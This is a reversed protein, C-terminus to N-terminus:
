RVQGQAYLYGAIAAVILGAIVAFAIKWASWPREGTVQGTQGNVVFRFSRGRFKYAAIWVPVLVHKFTMDSLRTDVDEVRQRDGGIDFKIDRLIQRDMVNRAEGFADELEITYAEARFGALYEPQYPELRTLDWHVLGQRFRDPLATSAVVLVDDFFRAVRGSVRRWKVKPVNVTERKGNRTVTRREHYVTGRQGRYSTQTDADFTWCPTYVGSMKRGKRAYDMLGSPAFWLSGLWQTMAARAEGEDMMFPLVAAPKIQRSAGTDVVVPTACFPCEKAHVAPDFETRAGCNPCTSTRTEEIEATGKGARLAGVLDQEVVAESRSWPGSEIGRTNGCHDCVLRDEGPAFRFDAGCNDCPFLHEELGM